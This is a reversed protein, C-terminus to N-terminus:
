IILSYEIALIKEFVAVGNPFISSDASNRYIVENRAENAEMRLKEEFKM